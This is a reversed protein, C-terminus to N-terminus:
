EGQFETQVLLCSNEGNWTFMDGLRKLNPEMFKPLRIHTFRHSLDLASMQLLIQVSDPKTNISLWQKSESNLLNHVNEARLIPFPSTQHIVRFIFILYEVEVYFQGIRTIM